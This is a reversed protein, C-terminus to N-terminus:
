AVLDDAAHLASVRPEEAMRHDFAEEGCCARLNGALALVDQNEGGAARHLAGVAPDLAARFRRNSDGTEVAKLHQDIGDFSLGFGLEVPTESALHHAAALCLIVEVPVQALSGLGM